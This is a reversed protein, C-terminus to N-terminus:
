KTGGLRKRVKAWTSALHVARSSTDGHLISSGLAELFSQPDDEFAPVSAWARGVERLTHADSGAGMPVEANEAWRVARENLRPDHLRANFGEMVDIERGIELLLRGHGGKGRAFPHPMYVLGGQDHIRECTEMVPTGGPIRERLYLGIVDVRERTKVEEGVIVRDPYREKMMLATDIEDHDTICIRDIGRDIAKELVAFPDSMCDFSQRTHIHM